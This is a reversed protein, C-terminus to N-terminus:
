RLVVFADVDARSRGPTAVNVLRITRTASTGYTRRWVIVRHATPGNLDVTAVQVGDVFVKVAGRTTSRSAIWAVCRGTVTYSTSAGRATTYRTSGASYSPSISTRWPGATSVGATSSQVVRPSLVPGTAFGGVNGARDVSRVRYRVTGSSSALISAARSAVGSTLTTWAGGNV